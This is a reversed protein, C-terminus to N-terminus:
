KNNYGAYKVGGSTSTYILWIVGNNNQFGVWVGGEKSDTIGLQPLIANKESVITGNIVSKSMPWGTGSVDWKYMVGKFEGGFSSQYTWGDFTPSSIMSESVNKIGETKVKNTVDAKPIKLGQESLIGMLEIARSIQEKLITM